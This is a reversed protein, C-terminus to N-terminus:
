EHIRSPIRPHRPPTIQFTNTSSRRKDPRCIVFFYVCQLLFPITDARRFAVIAADGNCRPTSEQLITPHQDVANADAEGRKDCDDGGEGPQQAALHEPEWQERQKGVGREPHPQQPEDALAAAGPAGITGAAFALVLDSLLQALREVV